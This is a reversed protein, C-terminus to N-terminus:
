ATSQANHTQALAWEVVEAAKYRVSRADNALQLRTVARRFGPRTAIDSRFYEVTYGLYKAAQAPTWLEPADTSVPEALLERIARLEALLEADNM